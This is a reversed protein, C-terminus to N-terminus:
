LNCEKQFDTWNDLVKPHQNFYSRIKNCKEIRNPFKNFCGNNNIETINRCNDDSNLYFSRKPWNTISQPTTQTSLQNEESDCMIECDVEQSTSGCNNGNGSGNFERTQQQIGEGCTEGPNLICDGQNIWSGYSCSTVTTIDYDNIEVWFSNDGDITTIQFQFEVNGGPSFVKFPFVIKRTGNPNTIEIDSDGIAFGSGLSMGDGSGEFISDQNVNLEYYYPSSLTDGYEDIFASINPSTIKVSHLQTGSSSNQYVNLNYFGETLTFTLNEGECDDNDEGTSYRTSTGDQHTFYILRPGEVNCNSGNLGNLVLGQGEGCSNECTFAGDGPQCEHTIPDDCEEGGGSGGTISQYLTGGASTCDSGTPEPGYVCDFVCSVDCDETISLDTPCASGGNSGEQIITRSGEREGSGCNGNTAVCSNWEVSTGLICDVPLPCAGDGPQCDFSMRDCSGGSLAPTIITQVVNECSSGCDDASPEPGLECDIAEELTFFDGNGIGDEFKYQTPHINDTTVGNSGEGVSDYYKLFKNQGSNYIKFKFQDTNNPDEILQFKLLDLSNGEHGALADYNNNVDIKLKRCGWNGCNNDDWGDENFSIILDDNYYVPSQAIDGTLPRLYVSKRESTTNNSNVLATYHYETTDNETARAIIHQWTVNRLNYRTNYNINNPVEKRKIVRTWFTDANGNKTINIAFNVFCTSENNEMQEYRIDFPIVLKTSNLISNYIDNQSNIIKDVSSTEIYNNAEYYNNNNNYTINTEYFEIDNFSEILTVNYPNNNPDFDTDTFDILRVDNQFIRHTDSYDTNFYFNEDGIWTSIQNFRVGAQRSYIEFYYSGVGLKRKLYHGNNIIININDTENHANIWGNDNIWGDSYAKIMVFPPDQEINYGSFIDTYDDFFMFKDKSANTTHVTWYYEPTNNDSGNNHNYNFNTGEDLYKQTAHNYITYINYVSVSVPQSSNNNHYNYHWIKFMIKENSSSQHEATARNNGNHIEGVNLKRCSWNDNCDGHNYNQGTNFDIFYVTNYLVNSATINNENPRIQITAPSWNTYGRKWRVLNRGGGSLNGTRGMFYGTNVNFLYYQTHTKLYTNDYNIDSYENTFGEVISLSKVKKITNRNKYWDYVIKLILGVVLIFLLYKFYKYEFKM